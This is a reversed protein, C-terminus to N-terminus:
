RRYRLHLRGFEMYEGIRVFGLREYFEVAGRNDADVSLEYATASLDSMAATFAEVLLRGTGSGRARPEVAIYTLEPAHVDFPESARISEAVWRLSRPDRAVGAAVQLALSVPNGRFVSRKFMAPDMAGAVFGLLGHEDTAVFAIAGPFGVVAAYWTRAVTPGLAALLGTLTSCHLAAVATVDRKELPRIM